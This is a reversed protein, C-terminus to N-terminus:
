TASKRTSQLNLVEDAVTPVIKRMTVHPPPGGLREACLALLYDPRPRFQWLSWRSAQDELEPDITLRVDRERPYEFSFRDLGLSLGMGRAKIYSEKFTWYEWFRDPQREPPLRSLEATEAPSFFRNAVGISAPRAEMNEVDIGLARGRTVGLAILGRTHSINFCLDCRTGGLNAVEPRGYRNTAFVWDAPAVAEYRSLVTRVMARTVLYRKRDDAFYFRQEQAREADTMLQRLQTLLREDVIEDYFALWVDIDHM